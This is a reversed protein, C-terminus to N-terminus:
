EFSLRHYYTHVNCRSTFSALRASILSAWQVSFVKLSTKCAMQLCTQQERKLKTKGKQTFIHVIVSWLNGRQHSVFLHDAFM